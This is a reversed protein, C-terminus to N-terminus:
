SAHHPTKWQIEFLGVLGVQNAWERKSVGKNVWM